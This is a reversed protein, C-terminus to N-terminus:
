TFFRWSRQHRFANLVPQSPEVEEGGGAGRDKIGFPTSCMKVREQIHQVTLAVIKSASLRQASKSAFPLNFRSHRWSRQHRFANLVKQEREKIGLAIAGRDKIGFPTSCWFQCLYDSASVLAVIKSASLRQARTHKSGFSAGVDAGRDKIGFPTSCM